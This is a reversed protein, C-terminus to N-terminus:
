QAAVAIGQIKIVMAPKAFGAMTILASARFQEDLFFEKDSRSSATV